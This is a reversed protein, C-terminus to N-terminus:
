AKKISMEFLIEWSKAFIISGGQEEILKQTISKLLYIQMSEAGKRQLSLIKNMDLCPEKCGPLVCEWSITNDLIKLTHISKKEPCVLMTLNLLNKVIEAGRYPDLLCAVEEKPMHLEFLTPNTSQNVLHQIKDQLSFKGISYILRGREISSLEKLEQIFQQLKGLQSYCKQMCVQIPHTLPGDKEELALHLYGQTLEIPISLEKTIAEMFLTKEDSSREAELKTKEIVKFQKFNDFVIGILPPLLSLVEMFHGLNINHMRISEPHFIFFIEVGINPIFGLFIGLYFFSRCKQYIMYSAPLGLFLFIGLPVLEVYPYFKSQTSYLAPFDGLFLSFYIISFVSGVILLLFLALTLIKQKVDLWKKLYIFLIGFVLSFGIFVRGKWWSYPFFAEKSHLPAIKEAVLLFHFAAICGISLFILGFIGYDENNTLLYFYIAGSAVFIGLLFGSLDFFSRFFLYLIEEYSAYYISRQKEFLSIASDEQILFNYGYYFSIGSFILIGGLVLFFKKEIQSGGKFFM